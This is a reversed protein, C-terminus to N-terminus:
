NEKYRHRQREIEKNDRGHVTESVRYDVNPGNGGM